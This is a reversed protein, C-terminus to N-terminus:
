ATGTLKRYRRAATKLNTNPAPPVLLASAFAASDRESLRLLDHEHVTRLAAQRLSSICFDSLTIGQLDAARQFLRKLEPAVRAELRGTAGRGGAKTIVATKMPVNDPLDGYM